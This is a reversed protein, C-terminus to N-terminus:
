PFVKSDKVTTEHPLFFNLTLKEPVGTGEEAAQEKPLFQSPFHPPALTSSVHPTFKKIFEALLLLYVHKEPVWKNVLYLLTRPILFINGM